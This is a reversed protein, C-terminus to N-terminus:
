NRILNYVSYYTWLRMFEIALSSGYCYARGLLDNRFLGVLRGEKDLKRTTRIISSPIFIIDLIDKTDEIFRKNDRM